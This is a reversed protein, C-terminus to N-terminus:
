VVFLAFAMKYIEAMKFKKRQLNQFFILKRHGPGSLSFDIKELFHRWGSWDAM